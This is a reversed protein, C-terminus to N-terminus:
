RGDRGASKETNGAFPINNEQCYAAAYSPDDLLPLRGHHVTDVLNHLVKARDKDHGEAQGSEHVWHARMEHGVDLLRNQDALAESAHPYAQQLIVARMAATDDTKALAMFNKASRGTFAEICLTFAKSYEDRLQPMLPHHDSLQDVHALDTRMLGYMMRDIIDRFMPSGNYLTHLKKPTLSGGFQKNLEAYARPAGIWTPALEAHQQTESFGIARTTNIDTLEKSGGSRAAARSSLNGSETSEAYGIKNLFNIYQPNHFLTIYDDKAADFAAIIKREDGIMARPGQRLKAANRPVNHQLLRATSSQLNFYNLLDGGQYTMKTFGHVGFEDITESVARTGGRYPDSQSGGEFFQLELSPKGASQAAVNYQKGMNRLEDHVKYILARAAPLGARKANDSHAIQVQQTIQHDPKTSLAKLHEQYHPNDLVARIINPAKGLTEHDEFLPVIGMTARKGDKSVAHQLLLAELINSTNQCEALVNNQIVEPFDRALEMRKLTQYAIPLPDNKDYPKGAFGAAKQRLASVAAGLTQPDALLGNIAKVRAAEDMSAYGDILAGVVRTYEEATERYEIHAFHTGFVRARRMLNLVDQDKNTEYIKQLEELLPEVKIAGTASVLAASYSTFQKETLHGPSKLLPHIKEEIKAAGVSAAQMQNQFQSLQPYKASLAKLDHSYLQLIDRKHLALAYLTTDGNVKANGDKDGSSGWSHLNLALKLDQPNYQAGYANNLSKDFAAYTAPMDRYIQGLFYIMTKAEEGVTLPTPKNNQMPLLPTNAFNALAQDVSVGDSEGGSEKLVADALTRQLGMSLQSNTNTPHGTMVIEFNAKGIAALADDAKNFNRGRKSDGDRYLLTRMASYAHDNAFLFQERALLGSMQYLHAAHSMVDMVVDRTQLNPHKGIDQMLAKRTADISADGETEPWTADILQHLVDKLPKSEGSSLAIKEQLKSAQLDIMRHALQRAMTRQPGNKKGTGEKNMRNGM